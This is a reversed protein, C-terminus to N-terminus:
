DCVGGPPRTAEYRVYASASASGGRLVDTVTVSLTGDWSDCAAIAAFISVENPSPRSLHFVGNDISWGYLYFGSGNSVVAQARRTISGRGQRVAEISPPSISVALSPSPPPYSYKLISTANGWFVVTTDAVLHGASLNRDFFSGYLDRRVGAQYEVVFCVLFSCETWLVRSGDVAVSTADTSETPYPVPANAGITYSQVAGNDESWYLTTQAGAEHVYLDTVTSSAIAQITYAGGAKPVRYLSTGSAGLTFYVYQTDLGIETGTVARVLHTITGGALPM